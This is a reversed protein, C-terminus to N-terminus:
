KGALRDLASGDCRLGVWEEMRVAGISEYFGLAGENWKLCSWELRKGGLRLTEQALTQLLRRAHGQRRFQPRM